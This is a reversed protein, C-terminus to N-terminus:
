ALGVQILAQIFARLLRHSGTKANDTLQGKDINACLVNTKGQDLPHAQLAGGVATDEGGARGSPAAVLDM